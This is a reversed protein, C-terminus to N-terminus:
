PQSVINKNLTVASKSLARGNMTASDGLAISEASLIIGEFHSPSGLTAGETVQWFVNAAQAGGSLIVSAASGLTLSGAIQFVWVGDGSLTINTPITVATTWKYLGPTFTQGDLNGGYLDTGDAGTRGEADTYAAQMDLVATALKSPTDPLMNSAYLKGTVEPSTAFSYPFDFEYVFGSYASINAPSLGIDGTIASTPVNTVASKALIVFDGASGLIVPAPGTKFTWVKDATMVNGELDKVAATITATYTTSGALNGDPAFIVTNSGGYYIVTGTVPIAGAAVTFGANVATGSAM